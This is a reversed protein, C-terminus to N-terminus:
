KKIYGDVSIRISKEVAVETSEDVSRTVEDSDSNVSEDTVAETSDIGVPEDSAAEVFDGTAVPEVVTSETSNEVAEKISGDVSEEASIWWPTGRFFVVDGHRFTYKGDQTELVLRRERVYIFYTVDDNQAAIKYAESLPINRAMAVAQSWDIKDFQTIQSVKEFNLNIVEIQPLLKALNNQDKCSKDWHDANVVSFCFASVTSLVLLMKKM